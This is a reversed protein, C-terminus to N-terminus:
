GNNAEKIEAKITEVLNMFRKGYELYTNYKAEAESDAEQSHYVAGMHPEISFGDDYGDQLLDKVIEKVQGQGEGPFCYEMEPFIGGTEKLYTGDKIHVYAIRDKLTQYAKWSSQKQYPEEGMRNDAMLPNGTDFVIKFNPSKIEELLLEMHEYSQSFYNMCNEHVYTIGTQECMEVLKKLNTLIKEELEPNRPSLDRPIGFSMGRIMKTGLKQMRPIARKLEELSQTYSEEQRPDKGWNAVASGFCNIKIGSAKLKEYVEEFKEESIDTLNKGDINRAEIYQWGLEKTVEIQKEISDAAEDAFGTYYM